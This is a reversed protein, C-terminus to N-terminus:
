PVSFRYGTGRVTQLYPSVDSLGEVNLAKRLRRIHVDITREELYATNGWVNDLIQSRSFVKDRHSMFFQLLRFETPGIDIASGDVSVIHSELNMSLLGCQLKASDADPAARRLLAKIRALLERPSFPKTMYDDAGAELGGIKSDEETRATLMIVPIASTASDRKLRRILELGSSGPLMWDLLILDPQQDVIQVHASHVDGAELTNYGANGLAMRLMDRIPVEDEVILITKAAM